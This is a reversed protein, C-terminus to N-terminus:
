RQNYFSLHEHSILWEKGVNELVVTWRGPLGIVTGDKLRLIGRTKAVVVALNGDYRIQTEELQLSFHAGEERYRDYNMNINSVHAQPGVVVPDSLPGFYLPQDGKDYADAPIYFRSALAVRREPSAEATERNNYVDILGELTKTIADTDGRAPLATALLMVATLGLLLGQRLWPNKNHM